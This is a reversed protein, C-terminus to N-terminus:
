KVSLNTRANDPYTVEIKTNMTDGEFKKGADCILNWELNIWGDTTSGTITKLHKGESTTIEIKFAAVPENLKAVMPVSNSDFMSSSEFFQLVNTSDFLLIPGVITISDYHLMLGECILRARLHHKGPPDYTTNWSLLCNGDKARECDYLCCEVFDGNKNLNGLNLECSNSQFLDYNIPVEFNVIDPEDHSTVQRLTLLASLPLLNTDLSTKAQIWRTISLGQYTPEPQNSDTVFTISTQSPLEIVAAKQNTPANTGTAFLSGITFAMFWFLCFFRLYL